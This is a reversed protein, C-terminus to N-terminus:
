EPKEDPMGMIVTILPAEMPFSLGLLKALLEDDFGGKAYAALGQDSISLLANQLACGVEILAFRYGRDNYKYTKPGFDTTIVLIATVNKLESDEFWMASNIADVSPQNALFHITNTFPCLRYVGKAMTGTPQRLILFAGTSSVGGSQPITRYLLEYETGDELTQPVSRVGGACDVLVRELKEQSITELSFGRKTRRKCLLRGLDSPAARIEAGGETKANSFPIRL